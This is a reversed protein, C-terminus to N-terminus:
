SLDCDGFFGGSHFTLCLSDARDPSRKLLERMTEKKMVMIKGNVVEYTPTHLEELLMEDPSLTAGPDTRLWERCAWWIQDRLIKFEGMESKKTPSSAVKVGIAVCGLRELHPAVGAGVGTSDVNVKTVNRAKYEAAARDGTAIPDVGSWIVLREVFGGYRFCCANADVGFEGIDLGMTATIGQPPVEGHQSVYVDWRARAAATWERSILQNAGQAPYKGLVMYSFAPEMIKYYGAQLPPYFHGRRSKATCGALFDPLEFCSSDIKEGDILPRCWENIRRVTTERTVTGPIQNRGSIVNPHNFASLSVIKAKGDRELRYVEGIESRPNFMILMRVVIGGSMCSEIGKYVEDPIADGEDLIFMLYAAHKGSFKAERQAPTGSSPITVGALFSKPSSEVHLISIRDGQFIDPYKQVKQGIEGWLLRKLNDEPPAAATYVQSDPFCKHFWIAISSAAHTKGVANSSKAITIENDRVSEM